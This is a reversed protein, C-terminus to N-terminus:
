ANGGKRDLLGALGLDDELWRSMKITAQSLSRKVTSPSLDMGDAIEEVTMRELHRFAFVLRNRPPLRDLLRYFKRLLDRSEVDMSTNGFAVFIEPARFSLWSRTRRNRLESQLVRVAFSFVFSRLSDPERLTKAKRFLRHFVEQTIDEAETKSGLTRTALMTVMPAFRHWVEETAWADGMLLQRALEGDSAARHQPHQPSEDLSV